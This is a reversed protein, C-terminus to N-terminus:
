YPQTQSSWVDLLAAVFLRVGQGILDDPFDYDPHHLEPQAIGAGLLVMASKSVAAFRGFDESARMPLPFDALALGSQAMARQLIDTAQIQNECHHFVDHISLDIELGHRVACGHAIDRVRQHLEAMTDDHGTRLTLFVQATGPAIGFAPEGLKIHTLTVRSFNPDTVVTTTDFSGVAAILEGIAAAPSVGTEPLSAHATKGQLTIKLGRSACNMVGTRIAAQGIAIGPYNHLALAYDCQLSAFRPDDIVAAAGAGTEEAPQFLLVLRGIKDRNRKAWKAVGAIIAMHGDHGCLHGRGEFQSRYSLNPNTECIPLGDLECRLMISPGIKEGQWIGAVGHGGLDTVIDDPVEGRIQQIVRRATNREDGSIEPFQHLHRRWHTLEVLDANTLYATM